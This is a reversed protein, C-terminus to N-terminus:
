QQQSQQKVLKAKKEALQQQKKEKLQKQEDFILPL